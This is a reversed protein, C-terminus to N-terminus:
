VDLAMLFHRPAASEEVGLAKKSVDNKMRIRSQLWEHFDFTSILGCDFIIGNSKRNEIKSAGYIKQKRLDMSQSDFTSILGCDFIIEM